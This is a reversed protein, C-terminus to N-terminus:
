MKKRHSREFVLGGTEVVVVMALMARSHSIYGFKVGQSGYSVELVLLSLDVENM